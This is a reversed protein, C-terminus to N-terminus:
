LAALLAAKLTAYDTSATVAERIRVQLTAVPIIELNYDVLTITANVNDVQEVGYLGAGGGTIKFQHRTGDSKKTMLLTDGVAAVPITIGEISNPGMSIFNIDATQQADVSMEGDRITAVGNRNEVTFTTDKVPNRLEILEIRDENSKSRSDISTGDIIIGNFDSTAGLGGTGSFKVNSYFGASDVLEIAPDSVRLIKDTQIQYTVQVQADPSGSNNSILVWKGPDAVWNYTAGTDENTITQTQTPDPFEFAAM